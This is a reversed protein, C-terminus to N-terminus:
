KMDFILIVSEQDLGEVSILADEERIALGDGAILKMDRILASGSAIQIWIRRSAKIQYTITKNKEIITQYVRADQYITFANDEGELSGILCLKNLMNERPFHKQSYSPSINQVNPMIWIQLFHVPEKDSANFESHFVGTGASMKQIDGVKMITTNGISDRHELEGSLVISIIEMNDHPHLGFGESPAVIDDNIVRLPGFGMHEVDIYNAFSFTHKSDLWYLKTSGREERKRVKYM